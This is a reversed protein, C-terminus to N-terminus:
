PVHTDPSRRAFRFLFPRWGRGERHDFGVLGKLFAYRGQPGNRGELLPGLHWERRDARRQWTVLDWLLSHRYTDDATQNYRYLAFLPSYSLRIAENNPFIPELPSLFQIQERGNGDTWSSLLPWVHSRKAVRGDPQGTRYQETSRFVFFLIRTDTEQMGSLAIEEHRYLPWLFWHKESDKRRSHSYFPAWRNVYRTNGRGQVFLPWLYNTQSYKIPDTRESWGFFPWLYTETRYGPGSSSARFPLFGSRRDPVPENLRRVDRYGLPWLYFEQEYDGPRSRRGYFPWVELGEHGNGSIQRFIPWPTQKIVRGDKETRSYLPFLVWEWRDRGFRNTIDGRLPFIARYDDGRTPDQRALYIPWLETSRPHTHETVADAPPRTVRILSLISWADGAATRDYRLLPYLSLVQRDGTAAKVQEVWLPRLGRRLDGPAPAEERFVLPGLASQSPAREPHAFRSHVGAPWLNAEESEEAQEAGLDAFGTGSAIGLLCAVRMLHSQNYNLLM